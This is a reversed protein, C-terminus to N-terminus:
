QEALFQLTEEFPRGPISLLVEDDLDDFIGVYANVAHCVSDTRVYKNQYDWFPGGIAKEPHELFFTNESSYTNQIIWRVVNVVAEKYPECDEGSVELCFHYMEMMVEALWGNGSTSFARNWRGQYFINDTEIRQRALLERSCVLIIDRYEEQQNTKYFDLLSMVVWASSIPNPDRYGDGLYCGQLEVKNAFRKAIRSAADYYSQEGTAGSLRSLASLVQGNYLLSEKTSQLWKEGDYRKQSTISGDSKQMTQLWNGGLKASERYAEDGTQDYLDLLTFISLATTGVVFRMEKTDNTTDYSYHFAGYEKKEKNQMSLLFEGWNALNSIIREDNDFDYIKLLTYIISASYVTHLREGYDDRLTDYKKYFGFEDEHVSRLLFEKGQEISEKLLTKDLTRVPILGRVLERAKGQYELFSVVQFTSITTNKDRWCSQRLGAKKCLHQLLASENYENNLAAEPLVIASKSGSVLQLGEKGIVVRRTANGGVDFPLKEFSYLFTVQFRAKPLDKEDLEKAAGNLLANKTAEELALSLLRNEGRGSGRVEGQWYLTVSLNWNGPINLEEQYRFPPTSGAVGRVFQIMVDALNEPKNNETFLDQPRSSFQYWLLGVGGLVIFALVIGYGIAKNKQLMM